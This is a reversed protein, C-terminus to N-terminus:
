NFLVAAMTIPFLHKKLKAAAKVIQVVERCRIAVEKGERSSTEMQKGLEELRATLSDCNAIARDLRYTIESLPLFLSTRDKAASYANYAEIIGACEVNIAECALRLTVSSLEGSSGQIVSHIQDLNSKANSAAIKIQALSSLGPSGLKYAFSDRPELKNPEM